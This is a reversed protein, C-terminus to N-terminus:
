AATEGMARVSRGYARNAMLETIQTMLQPIDVPEIILEDSDQGQGSGAKVEILATRFGTALKSWWDVVSMAAM